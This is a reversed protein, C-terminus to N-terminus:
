KNILKNNIQSVFVGAIVIIIGLIKNFNFYEAEVTSAIHDIESFLDLEEEYDYEYIVNKREDADSLNMLCLDEKETITFKIKEFFLDRLEPLIDRNIDALKIDGSKLRFYVTLGLNDLEMFTNFCTKLESMEM